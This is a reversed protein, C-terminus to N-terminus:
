FNVEIYDAIEDFSKYQHDNMAVCLGIEESTLGLYGTPVSGTNSSMKGFVFRDWQTLKDKEHPVGQVECLVGMCCYSNYGSLKLGCKGQGYIGSRLAEVWKRKAIADM